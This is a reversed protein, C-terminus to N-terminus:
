IVAKPMLFVSRATPLYPPKGAMPETGWMERLGVLDVQNLPHDPGLYTLSGAPWHDREGLNHSGKPVAHGLGPGCGLGSAPLSVVAHSVPRQASDSWSDGLSLPSM